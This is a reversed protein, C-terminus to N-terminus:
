NNTSTLSIPVTELEGAAITTHEFDLRIDYPTCLQCLESCLDTEESDANFRQAILGALVIALLLVLITTM